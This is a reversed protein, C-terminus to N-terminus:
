IWTNPPIQFFLKCVVAVNESTFLQYELIHNPMDQLHATPSTVQFGFKLYYVFSVRHFSLTQWTSKSYPKQIKIKMGPTMYPDFFSTEKGFRTVQVGAINWPITFLHYPLIHNPLGQLHRILNLFKCKAM